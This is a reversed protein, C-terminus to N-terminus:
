ESEASVPVCVRVCVVCVVCVCVCVMYSAVYMCLLMHISSGVACYCARAGDVVCEALLPQLFFAFAAVEYLHETQSPQESLYNPQPCGM